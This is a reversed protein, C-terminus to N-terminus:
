KLLIKPKCKHGVASRKIAIFEFLLTYLTPPNLSLGGIEVFRNDDYQLTASFFIWFDLAFRTFVNLFYDLLVTLSDNCTLLFQNEPISEGNVLIHSHIKIGYVANCHRGFSQTCLRISCTCTSVLLMFCEICSLDLDFEFRKQKVSTDLLM